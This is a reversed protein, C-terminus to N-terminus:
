QEGGDVALLAGSTFSAADSALYIAAGVVEEPQGARGL